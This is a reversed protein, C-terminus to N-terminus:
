ETMCNFNKLYIIYRIMYIIIVITLPIDAIVIYVPGSKFYDPHRIDTYLFASLVLFLPMINALMVFVLFTKEKAFHSVNNYKIDSLNLNTRPTKIVFYSDYGNLVNTRKQLSINIEIYSNIKNKIVFEWKQRVITVDTSILTSKIGNYWNERFLQLAFAKERPKLAEVVFRNCSDFEFTNITCNKDTITENPLIEHKGDDYINIVIDKPTRIKLIM